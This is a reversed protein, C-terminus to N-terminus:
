KVLLYKKHEMKDIYELAIQELAIPRIWPTKQCDLPMLDIIM